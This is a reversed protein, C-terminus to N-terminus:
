LDLVSCGMFWFPDMDNSYIIHSVIVV